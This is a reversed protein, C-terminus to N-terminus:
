EININLDDEIDNLIKDAKAIYFDCRKREPRYPTVEFFTDYGKHEISKFRICTEKLTCDTGFCKTLSM